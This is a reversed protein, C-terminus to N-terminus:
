SSRTSSVGDILERILMRCSGCGAGARCIETVDEVDDVQNSAIVDVITEETVGFCTCILADEGKFERVRTARYEFLARRLAEFVVSACDERDLPFSGVADHVVDRLEVDNLGHLDTLAKGSLWDTVVDAASIMFGCGNATFSADEITGDIGVRLSLRALSGCVFSASVGVANADDLQRGRAALFRENIRDPYIAM